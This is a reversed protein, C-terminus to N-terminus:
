LDITLTNLLNEGDFSIHRGCLMMKGNSLKSITNFETPLINSQDIFVKEKLNGIADIRYTYSYISPHYNRPQILTNEELPYNGTTALGVIEKFNNQIQPYFSNYSNHQIYTTDLLEGNGSFTFSILADTTDDLFYPLQCHVFNGGQIQHLSYGLYSILTMDYTTHLSKSWAADYQIFHLRTVNTPSIDFSYGCITIDGNDLQLVNTYRSDEGPLIDHVIEQKSSLDYSLDIAFAMERDDLSSAKQYGTLIYDGNNKTIVSNFTILLWNAFINRDELIVEGEYDIRKIGISKSVSTIRDIGSCFFTFTNKKDAVTTIYHHFNVFGLDNYNKVWIINGDNDTLIFIQSYDEKWARILV